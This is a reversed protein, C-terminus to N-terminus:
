NQKVKVINSALFSLLANSKDFNYVCYHKGTKSVCHIQKCNMHTECQLKTSYYSIDNSQFSMLSSHNQVILRTQLSCSHTLPDHLSRDSELQNMSDSVYVLVFPMM